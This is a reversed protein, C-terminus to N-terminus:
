LIGLQWFSLLCFPSSSFDWRAFVDTITYQSSGTQCAMSWFRMMDSRCCCWSVWKIIRIGDCGHLSTLNMLIYCLLVYIIRNDVSKDSQKCLLVKVAFVTKVLNKLILILRHALVSICYHSTRVKSKKCCREISWLCCCDTCYLLILFKSSCWLLVHIDDSVIGYMLCWLLELVM